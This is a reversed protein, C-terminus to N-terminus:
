KFRYKGPEEVLGVLSHRLSKSIAEFDTGFADDWSVEDGTKIRILKPKKNRFKEYVANAYEGEIFEDICAVANEFDKKLQENPNNLSKEYIENKVAYLQKLQKSYRKFSLREFM